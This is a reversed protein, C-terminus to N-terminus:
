TMVDYETSMRRCDKSRGVKISNGDAIDKKGGSRHSAEGEIRVRPMGETSVREGDCREPMFM